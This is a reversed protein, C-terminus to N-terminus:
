TVVKRIEITDDTLWGRKRKVYTSQVEATLIEFKIVFGRQFKAAIM